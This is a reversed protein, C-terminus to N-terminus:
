TSLQTGAGSADKKAKKNGNATRTKTRKLQQEEMRQQKRQLYVTVNDFSSKYLHDFRDSTRTSTELTEWHPRFAETVRSLEPNDADCEWCGLRHTYIQLPADCCDMLVWLRGQPDFTVDLPCHPLHLRSHPLLKDEAEQDLNFFHLTSLRNCQVAVYHGNPSSSIRCVAPNKEKNAESSTTGELQRLDRSQLQRGSEYDWLKVTGDGSGSLLWRPHGPLIQLASVFQQHGLCFAQIDYPARLHSVRIKEDREATIIFRNDPSTT